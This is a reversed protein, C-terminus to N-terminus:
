LGQSLALREFILAVATETLELTTQGASGNIHIGGVDIRITKSAAASPAAPATARSGSQVGVYANSGITASAERTRPAGREIGGAFAGATDQQGLRLMVRSPSSIGLFGKLGKVAAAGLSKAGDAVRAVGAVLGGIFGEVLGSAMARGATALQLGKSIVVGLATWLAVGAAAALALPAAVLVVAAALSALAIKGVLVAGSIATSVLSWHRKIALYGRLSLIVMDLFFHKVVPVVKALTTVVSTLAGTIAKKMSQGSPKSQDIIGFLGRLQLLFPKAADGLGDFLHLANERFLGWQNGIELAQRQLASSGTSNVANTLAVQFSKASVTGKSLGKALDAFTKQGLQKAIADVPIGAKQLELLSKGSVKVGESLKTLTEAYVAAGHDGAFAKVSSIAILQGRLADGAFGVSMLERAFPALQDRTLGTGRRLGDLMAVTAEGSVKGRGLVDFTSVMQERLASQEIALSTAQYTLAGIAATTGIAAAGVAVMPGVVAGISETAGPLSGQINKAAAGISSLGGISTGKGLQAQYGALSAKASSLQGSLSSMAAGAVKAPGSMRDELSIGYQLTEM